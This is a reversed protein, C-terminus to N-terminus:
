GAQNSLASQWAKLGSQASAVQTNAIVEEVLARFPAPMFSEIVQWVARCGPFSLYSRLAAMSGAFRDDDLVGRDHMWVIEAMGLFWRHMFARFQTFEVETLQGDGNLGRLFVAAMSADTQGDLFAMVFDLRAQHATARHIHSNQRIQLSLYILSILVGVGSVFSGISALDALSM